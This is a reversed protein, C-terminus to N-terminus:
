LVIYACCMTHAFPLIFLRCPLFHFTQIDHRRRGCACLIRRWAHAFNACTYTFAARGPRCHAPTAVPLVNCARPMCRFLITYLVGARVVYACTIRAHLTGKRKEKQGDQGLPPPYSSLHHIIQPPPISIPNNGRHVAHRVRAMTHMYLIGRLLGIDSM